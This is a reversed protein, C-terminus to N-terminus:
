CPDNVFCSRGRQDPGSSQRRSCRMSKTWGRSIFITATDFTPDAAPDTTPGARASETARLLPPLLGVLLTAALVALLYPVTTIHGLQSPPLLGVVSAASSALTGVVCIAM